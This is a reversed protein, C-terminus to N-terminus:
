FANLGARCYLDAFHHTPGHGRGLPLAHRIAITVFDKARRVAEPVPLNRALLAAIAASLTCGTGHTNLTEIREASFEHFSRGDFLLDRASGALHGGKVLVWKPGMGHIRRAAERMDEFTGIKIGTLASAEPVNPTVVLALPLLRSVLAERAEPLLLAAGGKAIMVPDVVLRPLALSSVTEAVALVTEPRSLMGTKVAKVPFDEAVARIQLAVFDPPADFVGLVGTTNQATLATIASCGYVGMAAFTKLDAQIGAGGGSDSGAITLAVPIEAPSTTGAEPM